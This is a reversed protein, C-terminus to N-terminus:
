LVEEAPENEKDIEQTIKDFDIKKGIDIICLPDITNKCVNDPYIYVESQQLVFQESKNEKNFIEKVTVLLSQYNLDFYNYEPYKNNFEENHGGLSNCLKKFTEGQEYAVKCINELEKFEKYALNIIEKIDDVSANLYQLYERNKLVKLVEKESSNLM